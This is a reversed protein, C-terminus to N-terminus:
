KQGDAWHWTLILDDISRVGKTILFTNTTNFPGISDPRFTASVPGVTAINEVRRNEPLSNLYVPTAWQPTTKETAMEHTLVFKRSGRTEVLALRATVPELNRLVLRCYDWGDVETLPHVSFEVIPLKRRAAQKQLRTSIHASYSQWGTFCAALIAIVLAADAKDM